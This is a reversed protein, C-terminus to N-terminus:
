FDERYLRTRLIERTWAPELIRWTQVIAVFDESVTAHGTTQAARRCAHELPFLPPPQGPLNSERWSIRGNDIVTIIQPTEFDLMRRAILEHSATSYIQKLSFVDGNTREADAAFWATPLLLHSAFRNALRERGGDTLEEPALAMARAIAAAQTEGIEHAVSWQLREPRPEPRVFITQRGPARRDEWAVLRARGLQQADFVVHMGMSRALHLADVPPTHVELSVLLEEVLSDLTQECTQFDFAMM